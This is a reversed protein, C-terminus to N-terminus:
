PKKEKAAPKKDKPPPPPPPSKSEAEKDRARALPLLYLQYFVPDTWLEMEPALDGVWASFSPVNNYANFNKSLDKLSKYLAVSSVLLSPKDSLLKIQQVSKEISAGDRELESLWFIGEQYRVDIEGSRIGQTLKGRVRQAEELVRGIQNLLEMRETRSLAGDKSSARGLFFRLDHDEALVVSTMALVLILLGYSAKPFRVTGGVNGPRYVHTVRCWRLYCMM